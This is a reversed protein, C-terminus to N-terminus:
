TENLKQKKKQEKEKKKKEKDTKIKDQKSLTSNKTGLVVQATDGISQLEKGVTNKLISLKFEQNWPDNSTDEDENIPLGDMKRKMNYLESWTCIGLAYNEILSTKDLGDPIVPFGLVMNPNDFLERYSQNIHYGTTQLIPRLISTMFIKLHGKWDDISKKLGKQVITINSSTKYGVDGIVITRSIGYSSCIMEQLMQSQAILDSRAVPNPPHVFTKNEPLNVFSDTIECLIDNNLTKSGSYAERFAQKQERLLEQEVRTIQYSDEARKKMNDARVFTDLGPGDGTLTNEANSQLLIPPQSHKREVKLACSKLGAIFVADELLSGVLSQISGDYHPESDFQGTCVIKKDWKPHIPMGTSINIIRYMKYVNEERRYDRYVTMYYSSGSTVKPVLDGNENSIYRVPVIGRTTIEALAAKAFALFEGNLLRKLEPNIINYPQGNEYFLQLGENFIGNRLERFAMRAWPNTRQFNKCHNVFGEDIFKEDLRKNSNTFINTPSPVGIFAMPKLQNFNM